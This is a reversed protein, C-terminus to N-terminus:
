PRELRALVEDIGRAVPVGNEYLLLRPVERVGHQRAAPSDWSGIDIVRLRTDRAARVAREVRPALRWCAGCWPKTFLFVTRGSAAAHVTLDVEAGESVLGFPLESGPPVPTRAAASLGGGLSMATGAAAAAVLVAAFVAPSKVRAGTRVDEGM